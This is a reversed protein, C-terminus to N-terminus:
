GAEETAEPAAAEAAEVTPAETAEVTAEMGAEETAEPATVDAEGTAEPAADAEADAHTPLPAGWQQVLRQWTDFVPTRGEYDVSTQILTGGPQLFCGFSTPMVAGFNEKAAFATVAELWLSDLDMSRQPAMCYGYWTQDIWLTKGYDSPRGHEDLMDQVFTFFPEQRVEISIFDLGDIELAREYYALDFDDTPMVTVGVLVDPLEDRVAAILQETHAVWANLNEDEDDSPLAIGSYNEYTSPNNVVVYVSPQYISAYYRIREEHLATFEDWPLPDTDEENARTLLYPSYQSDAIMLAAGSEAIHDMYQTEYDLQEALRAASYEPDPEPTENTNESSPVFIRPEEAELLTDGSAEIRIPSSGTDIAADLEAMRSKFYDEGRTADDSNIAFSYGLAVGGNVGMVLHDTAADELFDDRDNTLAREREQQAAVHFGIPLGIALVLLVIWLGIARQSPPSLLRKWSVLSFIHILVSGLLALAGLMLGINFIIDSIQGLISLGAAALVFEYWRYVVVAIGAIAALSVLLPVRRGRWVGMVAVALVIGGTLILGPGWVYFGYLWATLLMLTGLLIAVIGACGQAIAGLRSATPAPPLSAKGSAVSTSMRPLDRLKDMFPDPGEPRVTEDAADPADPRSDEISM